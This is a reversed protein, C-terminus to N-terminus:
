LQEINVSTISLARPGMRAICSLSSNARWSPFTQSLTQGMGYGIDMLTCIGEDENTLSGALKLARSVESLHYVDKIVVFVIIWSHNTSDSVMSLALVEFKSVMLMM